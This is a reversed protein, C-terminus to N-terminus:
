TFFHAFSFVEQCVTEHGVREPFPLGLLGNGLAELVCHEAKLSKEVSKSWKPDNQTM